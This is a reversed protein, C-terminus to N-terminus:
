LDCLVEVVLSCSDCTSFKRKTSAEDSKSIQPTWIVSFNGGCRCERTFLSTDSENSEDAVDDEDDSNRVFDEKLSCTESIRGTIDVMQKGLAFADYRAKSQPDLLCNAANVCNQFRARYEERQASSLKGEKEFLALKDPHYKLVSKKFAARIEAPTASSSIELVDYFTSSM